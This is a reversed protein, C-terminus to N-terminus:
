RRDISAASMKKRRDNHLSPSLPLSPLTDESTIKAAPTKSASRDHISLGDHKIKTAANKINNEKTKRNAMNLCRTYMISRSSRRSNRAQTKLYLGRLIRAHNIGHARRPPTRLGETAPRHLASSLSALRSRGDVFSIVNNNNTLRRVNLPTTHVPPLTFRVLKRVQRALVPNTHFHSHTTPFDVAWVVVVVVVVVVPSPCEEKCVTRTALSVCRLVAMESANM